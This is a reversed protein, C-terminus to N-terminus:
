PRGGIRRNYHLSPLLFKMSSNAAMNDEILDVNCHPPPTSQHFDDYNQEKIPQYDSCSRSMTLSILLEALFQHVESQHWFGLAQAWVVRDCSVLELVGSIPIEKLNYLFGFCGSDLHTIRRQM